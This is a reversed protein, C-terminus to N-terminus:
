HRGRGRSHGHPGHAGFSGSRGMGFRRFDDRDFRRFDDRDFRRFDDRDFDGFRRRPFHWAGFWRWDDGDWVLFDRDAARGRRPTGASLSQGQWLREAAVGRVARQLPLGSTGPERGPSAQASEQAALGLVVALVGTWFPKM